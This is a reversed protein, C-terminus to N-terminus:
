AHGVDFVSRYIREGEAGGDIRLITEATLLFRGDRRSVPTPGGATRARVPAPHWPASTRDPLVRLLDVPETFDIQDKM